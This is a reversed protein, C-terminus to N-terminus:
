SGSKVKVTWACESDQGASQVFMVSGGRAARLRTIAERATPM